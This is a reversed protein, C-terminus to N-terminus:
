TKAQQQIQQLLAAALQLTAQLRKQPDAETEERSSNSAQQSSQQVPNEVPHQVTSAGHVPQQLQQTQSVQPGVLAQPAHSLAQAHLFTTQSQSSPTQPLTTQSQSSPTQLLNSQKSDGSQLSPNGLQKQQGLLAALHALQEPHLPLQMSSTIQPKAEQQQQPFESAPLPVVGSAESTHNSSAMGQPVRPNVPPHEEAKSNDFSRSVANPAPPFTGSSPNPLPTSSSWHSTFPPNHHQFQDHRNEKRFDLSNEMPLLKDAPKHPPPFSSLVPNAHGSSSGLFSQDQSFLKFEPSSPKPCSTGGHFSAGDNARPMISPPKLEMAEMPNDLSSFSSSPQQFKLIVGSISVKGPVKLVQESFDSPPVLFLSVKEGLKAVAARQKEGLYHMFENYFGMDADTQPVFFVVWSSAAQYYHKALM